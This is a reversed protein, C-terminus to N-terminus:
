RKAFYEKGHMFNERAEIAEDLTEYYKDFSFGQRKNHINVRYKGDTKSIYRMGINTLRASKKPHRMRDNSWGINTIRDVWELNIVNNNKRDYDIHNIEPLNNPNAIFAEAVLRHIYFNKRKVGYRLGIIMYGHGNDTPTLMKGPHHKKMMVGSHSSPQYRVYPLSRINGFNSIQYRGDYGPIDRWEEVM